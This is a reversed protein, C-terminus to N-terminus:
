FGSGYPGFLSAIKRKPLSYDIDDERAKASKRSHVESKIAYLSGRNSFNTPRLGKGISDVNENFSYVQSFHDGAKIIINNLCLSAVYNRVLGIKIDLAESIDKTSKESHGRLYDLITERSSKVGHAQRYEKTRKDIKM